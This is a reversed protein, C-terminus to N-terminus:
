AMVRCVDVNRLQDRGYPATRNVHRRLGYVEAELDVAEMGALVQRAVEGDVTGVAIEVEVLDAEGTVPSVAVLAM